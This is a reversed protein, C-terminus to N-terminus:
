GYTRQRRGGVSKSGTAVAFPLQGGAGPGGAALSGAGGSPLKRLALLWPVFVAGLCCLALFVVLSHQRMVPDVEHERRRLRSEFEGLRGEGEEGSSAGPESGAAPAAASAAATAAAGAGNDEAADQTSRAAAADAIHQPPQEGSHRKHLHAHAAHVHARAHAHGQGRGAEVGPKAGAEAGAGEAEEEMGMLRRHQQLRHGAQAAGAGALVTGPLPHASPKPNAPDAVHDLTYLLIVVWRAVVDRYTPGPQPNFIDFCRQLVQPRSRRCSYSHSAPPQSPARLRRRMLTNSSAFGQM